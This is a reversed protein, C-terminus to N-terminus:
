LPEDKGIGREFGFKTQKVVLPFKSLRIKYYNTDISPQGQKNNVKSVNKWYESGFFELAAAKVTDDSQEDLTEFDESRIELVAGASYLWISDYSYINTTVKVESLASVNVKFPKIFTPFVETVIEDTVSYSTNYTKNEIEIHRFDIRSTSFSNATISWSDYVLVPCTSRTVSRARLFTRKENDSITIQQEYNQNNVAYLTINFLSKPSTFHRKATFLGDLGKLRFRKIGQFVSTTNTNKDYEAKSVAIFEKLNLLDTSLKEFIEKELFFPFYNQFLLFQVVM